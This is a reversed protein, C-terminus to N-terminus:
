LQKRTRLQFLGDALMAPLAVGAAERAPSRRLCARLPLKATSSRSTLALMTQRWKVRMPQSVTGSALVSARMALASPGSTISRSCSRKISIARWSRTTLPRLIRM